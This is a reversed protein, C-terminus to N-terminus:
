LLDRERKGQVKEFELEGAPDEGRMKRIVMTLFAGFQPNM